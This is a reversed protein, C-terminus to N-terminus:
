VQERRSFSTSLEKKGNEHCAIYVLTVCVKKPVENDILNTNVAATFKKVKAKTYTEDFVSMSNFKINLAKKIKYLFKM